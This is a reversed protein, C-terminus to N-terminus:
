FRVTRNTINEDYKKAFKKLNKSNINGENDLVNNELLLKIMYKWGRNSVRSSEVWIEDKTFFMKKYDDDLYSHTGSNEQFMNVIEDKSDLSYLILETGLGRKEYNLIEKGDVLVKGKKLKIKQSFGLSSILITFAISLLLKKNM